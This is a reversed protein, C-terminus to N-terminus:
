RAPRRLDNLRVADERAASALYSVDNGAIIFRAGLAVLERQLDLDGRIGGIGLVRGHAACARAVRRYADLVRPDHIQGPVGLETCLDNTGILLMDVGPVAALDMAAEVGAPTELM